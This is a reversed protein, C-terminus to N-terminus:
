REAFIGLDRFDLPKSKLDIKKEFLTSKERFNAKKARKWLVIKIRIGCFDRLRKLLCAFDLTKPSIGPIESEFQRTM